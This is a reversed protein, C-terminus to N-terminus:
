GWSGGGLLIQIQCDVGQGPEEKGLKGKRVVLEEGVGCGKVETPM